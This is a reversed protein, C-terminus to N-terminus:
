RYAIPLGPPATLDDSDIKKRIISLGALAVPASLLLLLAGIAAALAGRATKTPSYVSPSPATALASAPVMVRRVGCSSFIFKGASDSRLEPYLNEGLAATHYIIVEAAAIIRAIM